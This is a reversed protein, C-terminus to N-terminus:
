APYQLRLALAYTFTIYAWLLTFLLHAATNLRHGRWLATDYVFWQFFLRIAWFATHGILVLRALPTPTTLTEPFFLALAGMMLLTLCIFFTHVHFVQRNVPSLRAADANWNLHRGFYPHALALALLCGGVVRLHPTADIM